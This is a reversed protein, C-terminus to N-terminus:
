GQRPLLSQRREPLPLAMVQRAPLLGAGRHLGGVVAGAPRGAAWSPSTGSVWARQPQNREQIREEDELIEDARKDAAAEGGEVTTATPPLTSGTHELTLM